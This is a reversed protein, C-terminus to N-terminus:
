RRDAKKTDAIAPNASLVAEATEWVAPLFQGAAGARGRLDDTSAIGLDALLDDFAPALTRLVEPPTDAALITQCRAFTAM